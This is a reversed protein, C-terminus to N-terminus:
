LGDLTFGSCRLTKAEENGPNVARITGLVLSNRSRHQCLNEHLVPLYEIHQQKSGLADRPLAIFVFTKSSCGPYVYYMIRALFM